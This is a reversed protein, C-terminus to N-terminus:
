EEKNTYAASSIGFNTSIKEAPTSNNNVSINTPSPNIPLEKPVTLEPIEPDKSPEAKGIHNNNGNHKHHELTFPIKHVLLLAKLNQNENKLKSNEALLNQNIKLLDENNMQGWGIGRKLTNSIIGM